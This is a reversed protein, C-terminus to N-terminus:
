CHQITYQRSVHKMFVIKGLVRQVNNGLLFDLGANKDEEHSTILLSMISEYEVGEANFIDYFREVLFDTRCTEFKDIIDQTDIRGSKLEILFLRFKGNMCRVVILCDIAKPIKAPSARFASAYFQDPKLIVFEDHPIDRSIICEVGNEECDEKAFYRLEPHEKIVRIM